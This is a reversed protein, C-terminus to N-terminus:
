IFTGIKSKFHAFLKILGNDSDSSICALVANLVDKPYDDDVRVSIEKGRTPELGMIAIISGRVNIEPKGAASFFIPKDVTSTIKAIAASPTMHLGFNNRVVASYNAGFNNNDFSLIKM